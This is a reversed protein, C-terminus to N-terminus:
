ADVLCRPGLLGKLDGYLDPTVRVKQPLEFVRVGGSTLLNLRVESDGRHRLLTEKLRDVLEETARTDALSITLSDADEQVSADIPKVGYAHMSMGDDRANLKGRLAVISDPKLLHGFEQYSKGMFLGQIEGTFDEITVM